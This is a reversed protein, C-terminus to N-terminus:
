RPFLVDTSELVELSILLSHILDELRDFAKILHITIDCVVGSLDEALEKAFILSLKNEQPFHYKFFLVSYTCM